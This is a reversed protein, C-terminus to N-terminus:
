LKEETLIASIEAESVLKDDVFAKCQFKWINRVTNMKKVKMELVDGPRVPKRFKAKDVSLLYVTM